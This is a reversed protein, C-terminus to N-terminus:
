IAFLIMVTLCLAHERVTVTALLGEPVIATIVGICFIIASVVDIGGVIGITMFILGLIVAVVSVRQLVCADACVPM